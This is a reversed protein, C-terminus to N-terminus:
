ATLRHSQPQRSASSQAHHTTRVPEGSLFHGSLWEMEPGSDPRTPKLRWAKRSTRPPARHLTCSPLVTLPCVVFRFGVNCEFACRAGEHYRQRGRWEPEGPVRRKAAGSSDVKVALRREASFKATLRIEIKCSPEM